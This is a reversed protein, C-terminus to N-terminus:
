VSDVTKARFLSEPHRILDPMVFQNGIVDAYRITLVLLCM